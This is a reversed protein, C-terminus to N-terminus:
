QNVEMSPEETKMTALTPNWLGINSHIFSHCYGKVSPASETESLNLHPQLSISQSTTHHILILVWPSATPLKMYKNCLSTVRICCYLVCPLYMISSQVIQSHRGCVSGIVWEPRGHGIGSTDCSSTSLRRSEWMGFVSDASERPSDPFLWILPTGVGSPIGSTVEEVVLFIRSHHWVRYTHCMILYTYTNICFCHM